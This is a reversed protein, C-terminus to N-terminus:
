YQVMNTVFPSKYAAMSEAQVQYGGRMSRSTSRRTKRMSKRLVKRNTRTKRYNKVM